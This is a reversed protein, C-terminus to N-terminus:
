RRTFIRVQWIALFLLIAYVAMAVLVNVDLIYLSGDFTPSIFLTSFPNVFPQSLDYIFRAFTNDPNGATLRLVFRLGLLLELAAVPFALLQSLKHGLQARKMAAAQHLQQAETLQRTPNYPPEHGDYEPHRPQPHNDRDSPHNM